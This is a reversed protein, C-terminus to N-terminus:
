VRNMRNRIANLTAEMKRLTNEIKVIRNVLQNRKNETKEPKINKNLERKERIEIAHRIIKPSMRANQIRLWSRLPVRLCIVNTPM